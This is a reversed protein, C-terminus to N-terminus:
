PNLGILEYLGAGKSLQMMFWELKDDLQHATLLTNYNYEETIEKFFTYRVDRAKKEFNSGDLFVEKIFIKKNYTKALEKAYAIEKKSQERLNYDVIAIDFSINDELLLFFLATSDIGASFALLNKSEKIASFDLNM